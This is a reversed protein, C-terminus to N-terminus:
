AEKPKETARTAADRQLRAENWVLLEQLDYVEIGAVETVPAPFPLYEHNKWRPKRLTFYGDPKDIARSAQPLTVIRGARPDMM